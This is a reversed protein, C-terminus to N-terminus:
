VAVDAVETRLAPQPQDRGGFLKLFFQALPGILVAFALTGFGVTGGLLWGIILVTVEIATRAVRVSLRTRRSIGTM